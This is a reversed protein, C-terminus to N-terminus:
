QRSNAFGRKLNRFVNDTRLDYYIVEQGVTVLGKEPFGSGDEVVLYAGGYSLGQMLVTGANNRVDYLESLTDIAEPYLSLDGQIYARDTSAVRDSPSVVM